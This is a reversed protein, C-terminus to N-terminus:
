AVILPQPTWSQVIEDIKAAASLYNLVTIVPISHLLQIGCKDTMAKIVM